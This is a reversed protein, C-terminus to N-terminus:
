DNKYEKENFTIKRPQIQKANFFDAVRGEKYMQEQYKQLGINPLTIFIEEFNCEAQQYMDLLHKHMSPKTFHRIALFLEGRPVEFVANSLIIKYIKCKILHQSLDSM